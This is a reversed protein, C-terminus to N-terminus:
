KRIRKSNKNRAKYTVTMSHCNPCLIRLNELKCNEADGDIHDIETLRANDIPHRENWGCQQCGEGYLAYVYRRIYASLGLTEGVHGKQDGNIWEKIYKEHQFNMQCSNNCYKLLTNRKNKLENNCSLCYHM